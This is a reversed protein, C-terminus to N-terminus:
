GDRLQDLAAAAAERYTKFRKVNDGRASVSSRGPVPAAARKSQILHSQTSQSKTTAASEDVRGGYWKYAEELMRQPTCNPIRARVNATFQKSLEGAGFVLTGINSALALGAESTDLDPYKPNGAANKEAEFSSFVTQLTQRAGEFEQQQQKYILQDVASLRAAIEPPIEAATKASPKENWESPPEVGRARLYAAAQAKPDGENMQKWLKVAKQIAVTSQEKVGISQLYPNVDEALKELHKYRQAATKLEELRSRSSKHLRLSAEQQKRSLQAFDAKEEPTYESPAQLPPEEPKADPPPEAPAPAEKATEAEGSVQEVAAELSERLSMGETSEETSSETNKEESMKREGQLTLLM